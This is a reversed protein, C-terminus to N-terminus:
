CYHEEQLSFSTKQVTDAECLYHVDWPRQMITQKNDTGANGQHLEFTGMMGYLLCM